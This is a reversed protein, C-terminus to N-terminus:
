GCRLPVTKSLAVDLNAQGPGEVIGTGSNGFVTGMGDAGIVPPATFCSTNFYSNLKAGIPGATVLQNKRCKGSLEARNESIGFVNHANTDAVTLADDSQITLVAAL